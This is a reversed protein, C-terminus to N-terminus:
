KIHAEFRCVRDGTAWCDIETVIYEKGTYESLIGAIFGEDYNCVTEGLVPLGSCDLDEAVTLIAKGTAADFKEIRLIGIKSQSLVTKLQAIFDDFDLKQGLNAQYFTSGAKEGAKRFLEIMKDKGLENVLVDRLTYQFLRYVEVPMQEGLNIRGNKIDGLESGLNATHKKQFINEM